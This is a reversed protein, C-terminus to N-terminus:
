LINTIFLQDQQQLYLTIKTDERLAIIERGDVAFGSLGDGGVFFREFQALEKEANYRGILGYELNTKLVLKNALSNFWNAGFNWKHYEVWQNLDSVNNESVEEDTLLSYPPTLQIPLRMNSGKRPFTPQDVSNRGLVFSYSM